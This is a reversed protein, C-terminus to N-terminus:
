KNKLKGHLKYSFAHTIAIGLADATDDQNIKKTKLLLCVMEQIQKKEARGYGTIAQKVQLPTYSFLPLKAQSITLLIAGRAQGVIIATKSNAAFFLDEVAVAEPKYKKLVETLFENIMQLRQPLDLRSSTKFCGCEILKMDKPTDDIIGWGVREIGPDIGAIIM